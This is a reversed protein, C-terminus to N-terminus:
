FFVLLLDLEIQMEPALALRRDKKFRSARMCGSKSGSPSPLGTGGSWGVARRARQLRMTATGSLGHEPGNELPELLHCSDPATRGKAEEAALLLLQGLHAVFLVVSTRQGKIERAPWKARNGQAGRWIAFLESGYTLLVLAGSCHFSLERTKTWPEGKHTTRLNAKM